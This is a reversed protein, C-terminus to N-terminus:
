HRRCRSNQDWRCSRHGQQPREPSPSRRSCPWHRCRRIRVGRCDGDGNVADVILRHQGNGVGGAVHGFTVSVGQQGCAAGQANGVHVVAVHHRYRLAVVAVDHPTAASQVAGQRCRQDGAETGVLAAPGICRGLVEIEKGDAFGDRQRVVHHCGIIGARGVRGGVRRRDGDGYGAGGFGGVDDIARGTVVIKDACRM